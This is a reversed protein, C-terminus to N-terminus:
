AASASTIPPADTRFCTSAPQRATFRWRVPPSFPCLLREGSSYRSILFPSASSAAVVKQVGHRVCLELLDFTADVWGKSTGTIGNNFGPDTLNGPVTKWGSGDNRTM